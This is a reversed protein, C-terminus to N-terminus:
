QLLPDVCDDVGGTGGAPSFLRPEPVPPTGSADGVQYRTVARVLAAAAAQRYEDTALVAAESPNGIYALEALVTPTLPLRNIGYGDSGEANLVTLVGADPRGVWQAQFSSLTNFLEQHVLGGLRSSETSTSQVYVETGPSVAASPLPVSNNHHISILMTAGLADALGARTGIPLRYDGTRTLAVSVGQADLLAATRRAVDLNVEAETEGSPGIAGREDGGHGPDLMVDVSRLPQGWRITAANGCPTQVQFAGSPDLGTVLVLVGTPTIIAPPATGLDFTGIPNEQAPLVSNGPDTAAEAATGGGLPDGDIANNTADGLGEEMLIPREGVACAGLLLLCAVLM